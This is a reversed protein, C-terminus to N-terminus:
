AAMKNLNREWYVRLLHNTNPWHYDLTGSHAKDISRAIKQALKVNTTEIILSDGEERIEIIRELPNTHIGRTEENRILNLIDERHQPWYDGRLTVIGGPNREEVIKCGACVVTAAGSELLTEARRDDRNWHQNHYVAHCRSCVTDDPYHGDPIYSSDFNHIEDRPRVNGPDTTKQMAAPNTAMLNKNSPKGM